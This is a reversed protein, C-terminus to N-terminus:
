LDKWGSVLTSLELSKATGHEAWTETITAKKTSWDVTAGATGSPVIAGNLRWQNNLVISHHFSPDAPPPETSAFSWQGGLEALYIPGCQNGSCALGLGSWGKPYAVWCSTYGAQLTTCVQGDIATCSSGPCPSAGCDCAFPGALTPSIQELVEAYQRAYGLAKERMGSAEDLRRLAGLVQGISAILVAALSLAIIVEVVSMGQPACRDERPESRLKDMRM